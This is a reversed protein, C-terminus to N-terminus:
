GHAAVKGYIEVTGWGSPLVISNLLEFSNTKKNYDNFQDIANQIDSQQWFTGIFGGTQSIVIDSRTLYSTESAGATGLSYNLNYEANYYELPGNVVPNNILLTVNVKKNPLSYNNITQLIEITKLDENMVKKAYPPNNSSYDGFLRIEGVASQISITPLDLYRYSAGLFMSVGIIAIVIFVIAKIQTVRKSREILKLIGYASILAMATLFPLTYRPDKNSLATFVIYPILIWTVLLLKKERSLAFTTLFVSLGIVFIIFYPFSLQLGMLKIPYYTVSTLSFVAPDGELAGSSYDSVSKIMSSLNSFYFPASILISCIGAMIVNFTTKRGIFSLKGPSQHLKLSHLFCILGLLRTKLEPYIYIMLPPMTFIPFTWKTLMGLGFILGFALSFKTNSFKETKLMIWVTTSVMAVLPFDLLFDRSLGFIMPATMVIFAALIGTSEDKLYKGLGFTSIMLLIIFPLNEFFIGVDPSLGFLLYGPLAVLPAFPPYYTDTTFISGFNLAKLGHFFNLSVTFHHAEDWILPYSDSRLWYVENAIWFVLLIVLLIQYITIARKNGFKTIKPLLDNRV